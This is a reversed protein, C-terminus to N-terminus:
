QAMLNAELFDLTPCRSTLASARRWQTLSDDGKAGRDMAPNLFRMASRALLDKLFAPFPVYSSVSTAKRTLNLESKGRVCFEEHCSNRSELLSLESTKESSRISGDGIPDHIRSVVFPFAIPVVPDGEHSGMVHVGVQPGDGVDLLNLEEAGKSCFDTRSSESSATSDASRCDLNRKSGDARGKFQVSEAVGGVIGVALGAAVPLAEGLLYLAVSSLVWGCPTLQCDRDTHGVEEGVLGGTAGGGGLLCGRPVQAVKGEVVEKTNALVGITPSLLLAACLLELDFTDDEAVALM